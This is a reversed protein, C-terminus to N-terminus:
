VLSRKLQTLFATESIGRQVRPILGPGDPMNFINNNNQVVSGPRSFDAPHYYASSPLTWHKLADPWNEIYANVPIREHEVAKKNLGFLRTLGWGVLGGVITGAIAGGPGPSAAQIAQAVGNALNQSFSMLAADMAEKITGGSM